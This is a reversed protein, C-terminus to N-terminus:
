APSGVERAAVRPSPTEVPADSTRELNRVSSSALTAVAILVFIIASVTMLYETDFVQSLPGFALQGLPIAVFSGLADYSSVRSLVNNPIHEQLATQWGISFVEIGCGSLFALVLLPVLSPDAGLLFMPGALIAVGIMGARLPYRLRVKLLVVTMLVLGVSESSLLYGWGDVGITGKAITPGLTFFAGAWIANMVGFSLVVVWVWTREIFSDWGEKLDRVMSTRANTHAAPPVKVRSMCFAAIAWTLADVAIAWGSGATVVILAAVTPGLVSLGNRTFGLLANAQQIHSRPVVLPVVGQMAPFTFASVIGNLAELTIIM